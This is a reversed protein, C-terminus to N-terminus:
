TLRMVVAIVGVIAVPVAVAAAFGRPTGRTAPDTEAFLQKRLLFSAAGFCVFSFAVGSVVFVSMTVPENRCRISQSTTSRGHDHSSSTHITLSSGCVFPEAVAVVVSPAFAGLVVAFLIHGLFLSVGWLVGLSEWSVHRM